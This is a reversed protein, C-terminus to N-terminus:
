RRDSGFAEAGLEEGNRRVLWPTREERGEQGPSAEDGRDGEQRRRAM